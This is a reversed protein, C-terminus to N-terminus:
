VYPRARCVYEYFKLDFRGIEQSLSLPRIKIKFNDFNCDDVSFMFAICDHTRHNTFVIRTDCVFRCYHEDLGLLKSMINSKIEKHWDGIRELTNFVRADTNIKTLNLPMAHKRSNIAGHQVSKM